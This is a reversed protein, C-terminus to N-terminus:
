LHRVKETGIVDELIKNDSLIASESERECKNEQKAAIIEDAVHRDILDVM